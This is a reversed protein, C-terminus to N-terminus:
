LSLLEEDEILEILEQGSSDCVLITSLLSIMKSITDQITITKNDNWRSGCNSSFLSDLFTDVLKLNLISDIERLIKLLWYYVRGDDIYKVDQKVMKSIIKRILDLTSQNKNRGWGKCALIINQEYKNLKLM